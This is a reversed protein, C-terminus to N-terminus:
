FGFLRGLFSPPTNEAEERLERNIINLDLVSKKRLEEREEELDPDQPDQHGRRKLIM